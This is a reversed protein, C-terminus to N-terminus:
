VDFVGARVPFDKISLACERLHTIDAFTYYDLSSPDDHGLVSSAVPRPIVNSVFTTAANYRFLHTGRREGKEQRIGAMEYIHSSADWMAGATMPDYPRRAGLFVHPDANKPREMIIYDYIANGVIPRLPLTLPADTKAQILRIEDNNWDIDSFTLNAIDCARLGTYYLLTGIARNRLSLKGSEDDVLADRINATEEPQLYAINKRKNRTRPLYTLIRRAESTYNDLDSKLVAAVEKRYQDSLAITGTSDTFFAMTDEESIENLSFSGKAQMALLFNSGGSANGKITKTKLGHREGALRYLRIITQFEPCLQHYAGYHFLSEKKRYDPYIGYLDFRKLIGYELRYRRKMDPSSTQGERIRCASEYSDVADGNKKLWNIETKLQRYYCKAYGHRQMYQMLEDSRLVLNDFIM